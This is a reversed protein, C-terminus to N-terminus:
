LVNPILIKPITKNKNIPPIAKQINNNKNPKTTGKQIENPTASFIRGFRTNSFSSSFSYSDINQSLRSNM